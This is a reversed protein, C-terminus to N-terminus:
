DGNMGEKSGGERVGKSGGERGEERAGKRGGKRVEKGRLLGVLGISLRFDCRMLM